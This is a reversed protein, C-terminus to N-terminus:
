LSYVQLENTLYTETFVEKAENLLVQENIYSSSFHGILLKGVNAAKAVQAAQRATSHLYKIANAMKNEAYTAEHYLVDVCSIVKHLEPLYATDSCYAYSRPPAAPTVLRENPIHEGDATIWDAGCKINNIQSVPIDYFDLMDRRIHPLGPKERFLFGSCPLRHKLPITEITIGRDEYIVDNVTTNIEHFVVDYGLDNCFLSLQLSLIKELEVPAYIHLPATRGLLGFTSIM